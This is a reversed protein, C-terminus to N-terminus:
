NSSSAVVAGAPTMVQVMQEDSGSVELVPPRGSELQGVVEAAQKGAAETVEGVMTRQAAAVLAIAGVTLALAVVITALATTIARITALRKIM